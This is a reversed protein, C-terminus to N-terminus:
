VLYVHIRMPIVALLPDCDLVLANWPVKFMRDMREQLFMHESRGAKPEMKDGSCQGMQIMASTRIIKAVVGHFAFGLAIHTGAIKPSM